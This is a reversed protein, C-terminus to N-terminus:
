NNLSRLPILMHQGPLWGNELALSSPCTYPTQLLGPAGASLAQTYTPAYGPPQPGPDTQLCLQIGDSIEPFHVNFLSCLIALKSSNAICDSDKPLHEAAFLQITQFPLGLHCNSPDSLSSDCGPLARRM